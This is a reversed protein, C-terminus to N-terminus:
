RRVPEEPDPRHLYTKGLYYNRREEANYPRIKVNINVSPNDDSMYVPVNHGLNKIDRCVESNLFDGDYIVDYWEQWWSTIWEAKPEGRLESKVGFVAFCQQIRHLTKRGIQPIKLLDSETLEAAQELTDIDARWLANRDRNPMLEKDIHELYIAM